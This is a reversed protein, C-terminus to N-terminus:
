DLLQLCKAKFGGAPIQMWVDMTMFDHDHHWLAAASARDKGRTPRDDQLRLDGGPCTFERGMVASSTARSMRAPRGPAWTRTCVSSLVWKAARITARSYVCSRAM